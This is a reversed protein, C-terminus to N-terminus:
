LAIGEKELMVRLKKRTRHLIVYVHNETTHLQAAITQVPELHWYRRLFIYKEKKPLTTLFMDLTRRIVLSDTLADTTQTSPICYELEDLILPIQAGGRKDATCKELRNIAINRVIKGLYLRLNPPCTPPIANWMRLYADNVCETADDENQLISMAICHCYRGYQEDTATIASEDRANYLELINNDDM